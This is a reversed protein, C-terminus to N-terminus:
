FLDRSGGVLTPVGIAPLAVLEQGRIRPAPSAGPKRQVFHLTRFRHLRVGFRDRLEEYGVLPLGLESALAPLVRTLDSATADAIMAAPFRMAVRDEWRLALGDLGPELQMAVDALRLGALPVLPGALEIELTLRTGLSDGVVDRLSAIVRDSLSAAMAGGTTRRVLLDRRRAVADEDRSEPGFLPVMDVAEGVVRGRARLAVRVATAGPVPVRAADAEPDPVDFAELWRAATVAAVAAGGVDPVDASSTGRTAAVAPLTLFSALAIGIAAATRTLRSARKPGGAM